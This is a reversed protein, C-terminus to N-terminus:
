VDGNGKVDSARVMLEPDRDMDHLHGTADDFVGVFYLAFDEPHKSFPSDANNVADSFMRQAVGRAPATFPPLFAELKADKVACVIHKM